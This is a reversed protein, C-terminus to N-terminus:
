RVGMFSVGLPSHRAADGPRKGAHASRQGRGGCVAHLAQDPLESLGEGDLGHGRLRRWGYRRARKLLRGQLAGHLQLGPSAELGATLRGRTRVATGPGAQGRTLGKLPSQPATHPPHTGSRATELPESLQYAPSQKDLHTRDPISSKGGSSPHMSSLQANRLTARLITSERQAGPLAETSHLHHHAPMPQGCARHERQLERIGMCIHDKANQGRHGQQLLPHDSPDLPGQWGKDRESGRVKQTINETSSIMHRSASLIWSGKAKNHCV